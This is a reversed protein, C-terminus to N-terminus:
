SIKQQIKQKARRVFTRVSNKSIKLEQAIESYSLGQAMHLLYCLRERSSMMWLIEVIQRKEADTLLREQPEIDLSPLFGPDVLTTRLYVDQKEVGRRNGPRRGRKMWELAYSMDIIMGTVTDYELEQDPDKRNLKSRYALLDRRGASYQQILKDVWAHKENEKM